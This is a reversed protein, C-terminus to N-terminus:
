GFIRIWLRQLLGLGAWWRLGATRFDRGADTLCLKRAGLETVGREAVHGAEMLYRAIGPQVQQGHITWRTGYGDPDGTLMLIPVHDGMLRLVELTEARSPIAHGTPLKM